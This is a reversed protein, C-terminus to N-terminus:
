PWRTLGADRVAARAQGSEPRRELFYIRIGGGPAPEGSGWHFVETRAPRYSGAVLQKLGECFPLRCVYVVEEVHGVQGAYDKWEYIRGRASYFRIPQVVWPEQGVVDGRASEDLFLAITRWPPDFYGPFGVLSTATWAVLVGGLAAGVWRRHLGIAIGVLCMFFIAPGILQRAAWLSVPGFMSLLWASVPGCVTLAAVALIARRDASRWRWVLSSMVVAIVLVLIWSTGPIRNFVDTYFAPLHRVGPREIWQIPLEAPLLRTGVLVLWPVVSLMGALGCGLTLRRDRFPFLVIAAFQPVLVFVGMYQSYM